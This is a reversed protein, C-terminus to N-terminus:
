VSIKRPLSFMFNNGINNEEPEVWIKGGHAEVAIKCFTLGLGAGRLVPSVTGDFQAFRDFVRERTEPPIGPGTDSICFIVDGGQPTVTISVQGGGPTFKIANNLLNGLIRYLKEQDADITIEDDPLRTILSINEMDAVVQVRHIAEEVIGSISVLQRRLELRGEELHTVDLMSEVMLQLNDCNSNAISLLQQNEALVDEPLVMELIKIAGFLSSIPHRLDNVILDVTDQWVQEMELLKQKETQLESVQKILQSEVRAINKRADDSARLRASLMSLISLGLKPNQTLLIEFNERSIQLLRVSELTVISASRPENELLAMEGVIEGVGRYGLVTPADLDGKVVAVRGSWIIFMASGPDGEQFVIQGADYQQEELLKSLLERGASALVRLVPSQFKTSSYRSSPIPVTSLLSLQKPTISRVTM